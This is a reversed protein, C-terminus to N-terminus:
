DEQDQGDRAEQERITIEIRPDNQDEGKSIITLFHHSDDVGIAEAVSDTALKIRDQADERKYRTKAKNPWGLNFIKKFFVRVLCTYPIDKKFSDTTKLFLSAVEQKVRRKYARADTTLERIVFQRKGRRVIIDTYIDNDSPPMPLIMRISMRGKKDLGVRNKATVVDVPNSSARVFPAM